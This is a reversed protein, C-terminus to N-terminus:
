DIHTHDEGIYDDLCAYTKGMGTMSLQVMQEFCPQYEHFYDVGEGEITGDPFLTIMILIWGHIMIKGM